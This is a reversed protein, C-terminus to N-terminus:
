FKLDVAPQIILKEILKEKELATFGKKYLQNIDKLELKGILNNYLRKLYDYESNLDSFALSTKIINKLEGPYPLTEAMRLIKKFLRIDKTTGKFNKIFSTFYYEAVKILDDNSYIKDFKLQISTKYLIM